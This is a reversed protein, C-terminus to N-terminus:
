GVSGSVSPRHAHVRAHALAPALDDFLHPGNTGHPLAGVALLIRKHEETLGKLLVAIGRQELHRTIDALANAGTADLHQMDALRLIVVRVDTIAIIETLFRQAVGFFLPGDLRYTVIHADLLIHEQTLGVEVRHTRELTMGTTRVIQRLALVAALGLGIAVASVLDLAVTAGATLVLVATDSRTTRTIAAISFRDIMRVATVMLVGALAALPIRGVLSGGILVVGLLLLAHVVAALRTRAGARTNVATRAIAGTAPMGGFLASAINALGQGFLERSPEHDSTDSMGDAVRAALLSELSALTAVALAAGILPRATSLDPLSPAPLRHPLAGIVAVDAGSVAAAVTAAVVAILSAPATKSVRKLVVMIATVLLALLISGRNAQASEGLGRVAIAAVNEGDPKAIGMAVPVQQLFIIAAIGLTFGEVLPWPLYALLQGVGTMGAIVIFIGALTAVTAVASTGHRAVLPVLVVTMAGTPGSVQVNSGGFIAAVIGAVIATVLGAAAGLGSAVGFGLALPLAVVGVTAGAVVDARWGSRLGAYDARRPLLASLTM